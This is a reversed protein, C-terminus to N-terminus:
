HGKLPKVHILNLESSNSETESMIRFSFLFTSLKKDFASQFKKYSRLRVM